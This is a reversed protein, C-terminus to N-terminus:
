SPFILLSRKRGRSHGSRAAMQASQTQAFAQLAAATTALWSYPAKDIDAELKKASSSLCYRLYAAYGALNFSFHGRVGHLALEKRIKTHAFPATMQFVVHKHRERVGTTKNCRKHPEDFVHVHKLNPGEGQKACSEKFLHGVDHKSLDDPKLWKQKKRDALSSPYARPCPWVFQGCAGRAQQCAEAEEEGGSSDGEVESM